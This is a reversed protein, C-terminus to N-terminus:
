KVKQPLLYLTNNSRDYSLDYTVKDIEIKDNKLTTTGTSVDFEIAIKEGKGDIVVYKVSHGFAELAEGQNKDIGRSKDIGRDKITWAVVATRGVGHEGGVSEFLNRSKNEKAKGEPSVRVKMQNVKDM